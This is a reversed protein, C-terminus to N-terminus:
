ILLAEETVPPPLPADMMPDAMMPDLMMDEPPLEGPMGMGMDMGMGEPNLLTEVEDPDLKFARSLAFKKLERQNIEPDGLFAALIEKTQTSDKNEQADLTSQLMVRPEYNGDQFEIPDFEEWRTGDDGVIRVMQPENVYLKIMEFVIRAVQHFGENEIQTVKLGLRQGAGAIQANIETATAASEDSVGKVTENTAVTERIENKLNMRENFAERPIPRQQIPMLTDKPVPYVAGPLNEIEETLHAYKPDITYMQNLTYTISDINQNTIDNLLEQQPMMVEIEGRGYFLSEDIFDRQVAFPMMGKANEDGLQKARSKFYNDGDEIIVSRNAVSVIKDETHWEIVEVQKKHAEAVTSGYFMDKMEKDTEQDDSSGMSGVKGLNKYKPKMEGTDPDVVEFSKLEDLTTLYRRGMFRATELSTATPDIFFDRLPVNIMCPHDINWYLYVVGTGYSLMSRGWSICKINWKDKDWYYDLLANLIETSQDPKEQPPIYSFKPKSSFLAAVMTEITSFTMPVFTDTIGQYSKKVRTNNYLKFCDEWLSHYNSKTYEWSSKFDDMVQNLTDPKQSKSKSSTKRPLQNDVLGARAVVM